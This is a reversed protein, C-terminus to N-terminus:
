LPPIQARPGLEIVEMDFIRGADIKFRMITRVKHFGHIGAAGPNIYLMNLRKDMQVKLIHSHGCVLIDPPNQRMAERIRRDYVYIKGAIHTIWIKMGGCTFQQDLPFIKRVEAGDINGYVGRVPKFAELQHIVSSEGVDGAHWIEDVDKFHVFVRHDLHSHTDSILGISRM